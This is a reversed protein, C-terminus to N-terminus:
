DVLIQSWHWVPTSFTSPFPNLRSFDPIWPTEDGLEQIYGDEIGLADLHDILEAYEREVLGRDGANVETPVYQVMLSLISKGSWKRAFLDLVRYTSELHGPLVLHRLIVGRILRESDWRLDRNGTMWDIAPVVHEAYRNNGTFRRSQEDDIWKIDALYIDVVDDLMELGAASEFSSTNWVIPLDLGHERAMRIGEYISPIFHTGTVLNINAAGEAQLRLCIESFQAFSVEAGMHSCSKATLQRNQCFSCGLPCGSFFITGSGTFPSPEGMSICPEEGRHIGAFAIRLKDTEGCLGLQGATRDVM